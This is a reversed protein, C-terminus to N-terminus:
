RDERSSYPKVPKRLIQQISRENLTECLQVAVIEQIQAVTHGARGLTEIFRNRQYRRYSEFRRLWMKLQGSDHWIQPCGDLYRWMALFADVGITEAVGLWVPSLGILRLDDIRPDADFKSSTCAGLYGGGGSSTGARGRRAGVRGPSGHDGAGPRASGRKSHRLEDDGASPAGGSAASRIDGEPLRRRECSHIRWDSNASKTVSLAPDASGGSNM